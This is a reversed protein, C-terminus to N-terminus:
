HRVVEQDLTSYHFNFFIPSKRWHKDVYEWMSTGHSAAHKPTFGAEEDSTTLKGKKEELLWGAEMREFENDLMFTRFRNSVYHYAMFKIFYQNFEFSCPFQSHIQFYIFFFLLYINKICHRTIFLVPYWQMHYLLLINAASASVGFESNRQM